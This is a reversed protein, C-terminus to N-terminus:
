TSKSKNNTFGRSEYKAIREPTAIKNTSKLYMQKANILMDVADSLEFINKSLNYSVKVCDMDFADVVNSLPTDAIYIVQIKYNKDNTFTWVSHINTLKYKKKEYDRGLNSLGKVAMRHKAFFETIKKHLASANIIAPHWMVMDLEQDTEFIVHRNAYNFCLLQDVGKLPIWLDIDNPSWTPNKNEQQMYGHLAASGAVVGINPFVKNFDQLVDTNLHSLTSVISDNTSNAM